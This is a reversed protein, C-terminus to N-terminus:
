GLRLAGYYNRGFYDSFDSIKVVDGTRPAHVFQGGGIYIGVHEISSSTDSSFFVLDGYQLQSFSVHTGSAYYQDGAGRYISLGNQMACYYILGSCDFGSPSAGGWVYPTGLFTLALDAMAAGVNSPVSSTDSPSSSSSSSSSASDASESSSSSSNDAAAKAAQAAAKAAAEEAARRAEKELREAEIRELEARVTKIYGEDDVEATLARVPTVEALQMYGEVDAAKVRLWEGQLDTVIMVYDAEVTGAKEAEVAPEALLTVEESSVTGFRLRNILSVQEIEATTLVSLDLASEKVYGRYTGDYEVYYFDSGECAYLVAVSDSSGLAVAVLSDADAQVYLDAEELVQVAPLNLANYDAETYFVDTLVIAEAADGNLIIDQRKEELKEDTEAKAQKFALQDVRNMVAIEPGDGSVNVTVAELEGKKASNEASNLPAATVGMFLVFLAVILTGGIYTLIRQRKKILFMNVM